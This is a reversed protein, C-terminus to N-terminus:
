KRAVRVALVIIIVVLIVAIAIILVALLPNEGLVDGGLAKEISVSVPQAVVLEGESTIEVNFSNEGSVGKNVDFTLLVDGSQGAELVLLSPEAVVGAAWATYGLANVNYTIATNGPNTVTVRVVMDQGAKGGSDLVASVDAQALMCNGEVKVYTEFTTDSHEDYEDDDEDYDYYTTMALTYQKEEVGEPIEFTFSVQEKDGQDLDGEVVQELDIGLEENYLTVKFQDLFDEDGINWVDADFMLTDGCAADLLVPLSETDVVIMKEVDGEKNVKVETYYATDLDDSYDLCTTSEEDAPYAKVMLIYTGDEIEGPDVRFEFTHSDKEDEDIDGGEFEEEDSSIWIMDEMYNTDSTSGKEFLGIVFTVDNLDGDGDSDKDNELEVEIEIIDLPLWEEEDGEGTNKIDVNLTLDAENISSLECFEYDPANVTVLFALTAPTEGLEGGVVSVTGSITGYYVQDFTVTATVPLTVTGGTGDTIATESFSIRADGGSVTSVSWDLASSAIGDNALDFTFTFSGDDHDVSAPFVENSISLTAASTLGALLVLAFISLTVLGFIKSKM